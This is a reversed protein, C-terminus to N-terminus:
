RRTNWVRVLHSAMSLAGLRTGDPSFTLYTRMSFSTDRASRVLDAFGEMHRLERGTDAAFLTITGQEMLAAITTGDPSFAVEAADPLPLQRVRKSDAVQFWSVGTEPSAAAVVAGDDSFAVVDVTDDTTMTSVLSWDAVRWVRITAGSAAALRAGDRSFALSAVCERQGSLTQGLTRGATKWMRVNGDCSGEALWTGDPSLAISKVDQPTIDLGWVRSGDSVKWVWLRYGKSTGDDTTVLLTSDPFFAALGAYERRLFRPWGWSSTSYLRVDPGDTALWKGDPSYFIHNAYVSQLEVMCGTRQFTTDFFQCPNFATIPHMWLNLSGLGLCVLGPILWDWQPEGTLRDAAPVQWYRYLAYLGYAILLVFVLALDIVATVTGVVIIAALLLLMSRVRERFTLLHLPAWTALKARITPYGEVLASVVATRDKNGTEVALYGVGWFDADEHVEVVESARVRIQTSRRRVLIYNEGLEISEGALGRWGSRFIFLAAGIGLLALSVLFVLDIEVGARQFALAGFGIGLVWFLLCLLTARIALMLFATRGFHFTQM